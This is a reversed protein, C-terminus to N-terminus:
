TRSGLIQETIFRILELAMTSDEEYELKLELMKLLVKKRLPYKKEVLMHIVLGAEIVLTHVGLSGHLKWSVINWDLNKRKRYIKEEEKSEEKIVEKSEEKVMQDMSSDIGKENIRKILREDETSGISIFDEDSREKSMLVIVIQENIGEIQRDTSVKSGDTSVIPRDISVKEKDTSVKEKDTSVKVKDTSLVDETVTGGKAVEEGGLDWGSSELISDPIFTSPSPRPSPDTQQEIPVESTHAPSLDLNTSIEPFREIVSQVRVTNKEVGRYRYLVKGATSVKCILMIQRKTLLSGCHDAKQMALFHTEQLYISLWKIQQINRDSQELMTVLFERAASLHLSGGKKKLSRTSIVDVDSPKRMRSLRSRSRLLQVLLRVHAFDFKELIVPELSSSTAEVLCIKRYLLCKEFDMQYVIFGMYSAFDLFIRIAEIRAVPAFVEDYDIGEEQRHGQAVLMAKNRVVIGREDKKNRNFGSQALLRRGLLCILLIWFKRYSASSVIGDQMVDGLKMKAEQKFQMLPDGQILTSTKAAGEQIVLNKTEQAFEKRLAEAEENAEKEQRKLRELEDLFVQEEEFCDQASEDEKESDGADIIDKTGANQNAEQQCSAKHQKGKQCAVCTHDNQFIKSPLGRVLNGKVLKNLNKFNVHGLRRHWKNSEDTTAKAILCALGGSPVINELNFSYM